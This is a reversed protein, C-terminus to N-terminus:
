VSIFIKSFNSFFLRVYEDLFFKISQFFTNERNNVLVFLMMRKKNKFPKTKRWKIITNTMSNWLNEAEKKEAESM